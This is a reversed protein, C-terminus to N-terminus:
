WGPPTYGDLEDVPAMSGADIILTRLPEDSPGSAGGPVFSVRFAPNGNHSIPTLEVIRGDFEKAVWQEIMWTRGVMHVFTASAPAAAIGATALLALAAVIRTISCGM